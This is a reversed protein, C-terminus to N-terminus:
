YEFDARPEMKEKALKPGEFRAFRIGGVVMGALAFFRVTYALLVALLAPSSEVQPALDVQPHDSFSKALEPVLVRDLEIAEAVVTERDAGWVKTWGVMGGQQSLQLDLHAKVGTARLAVEFAEEYRRSDVANTVHSIVVRYERGALAPIAFSALFVVGSALLWITGARVSSRPKPLPPPLAPARDPNSM